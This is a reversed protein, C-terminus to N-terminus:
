PFMVCKLEKSGNAFGSACRYVEHRQFLQSRIHAPERGPVRLHFPANSDGSIYAEYAADYIIVTGIYPTTWGSRCSSGKDPDNGNPQQAPVPLSEKPFEPVLRNEGRYLAHLDCREVNETNPNYTGTRSAM